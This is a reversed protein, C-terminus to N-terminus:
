LFKLVAVFYRTSHHNLKVFLKLKHFCHNAPVFSSSLLWNNAVFNCSLLLGLLRLIQQGFIHDISISFHFAICLFSFLLGFITLYLFSSPLVFALYDKQCNFTRFFLASFTASFDFFYKDAIFPSSNIRINLLAYGVFVFYM